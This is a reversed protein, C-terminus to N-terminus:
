RLSARQSMIIQAIREAIKLNGEDSYHSHDVYPAPVSMLADAIAYTRRPPTRTLRDYFSKPDAGIPYGKIPQLFHYTQIGFSTGIAQIMRVNSEFVFLAREVPDRSGDTPSPSPKYPPISISFRNRIGTLLSMLPFTENLEIWPVNARVSYRRTREKEWALSALDSFWPNELGQVLYTNDNLGDLFLAIDPKNETRVLSSFYALELSSFYYPHGFNIVQVHRDPWASALLKQLHSPITESDPMGWGFMTSGGFAWISFELQGPKLPLPPATKRVHEESVNVLSGKFRRSIFVTWPFFEFSEADGMRDYEKGVEMATPRDLHQYSDLDFYQSYLNTPSKPPFLSALALVVGILIITNFAVIAAGVYLRVAWPSKRNM